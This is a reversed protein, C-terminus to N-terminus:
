FLKVGEVAGVHNRLGRANEWNREERPVQLADLLQSAVGPTFPQLCIGVVRLAEISTLYTAYVVDPKTTPEWPAIDTM